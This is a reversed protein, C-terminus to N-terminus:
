DELTIIENNKIANYMMCLTSLVRSATINIKSYAKYAEIAEAIFLLKEKNTKMSDLMLVIGSINGDYYFEGIKRIVM